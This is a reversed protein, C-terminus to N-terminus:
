DEASEISAIMATAVAVLADTWSFAERLTTPEAYRMDRELMMNWYRLTNETDGQQHYAVALGALIRTSLLAIADEQLLVARKLTLVAEDLNGQEIHLEGLSTYYAPTRPALELAQQFDV